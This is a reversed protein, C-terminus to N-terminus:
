DYIIKSVFCAALLSPRHGFGLIMYVWGDLVGMVWVGRSMGRWEKGFGILVSSAYPADLRFGLCVQRIERNECRLLQIRVNM